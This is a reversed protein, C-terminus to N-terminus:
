YVHRRDQSKFTPVEYMEKRIKKFYKFHLSGKRKWSVFGSTSLVTISFIGQVENLDLIIATPLSAGNFYGMDITHLISLFSQSTKFISGAAM